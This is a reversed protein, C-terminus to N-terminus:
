GECAEPRTLKGSKVARYVKLHALRAQRNKENWLRNYELVAGIHRKRNLKSAARCQEIHGHRYQRCVVKNCNRCRAQRGDVACRDHHFEELPKEQKCVHCTKM